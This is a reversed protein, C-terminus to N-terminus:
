LKNFTISPVVYNKMIKDLAEISDAKPACIGCVCINKICKIVPLTNLALSEKIFKIYETMTDLTCVPGIESNTNTKCDKTTFVEKTHQNIHLFYWNVSCYWDKFGQKPVFSLSQKLNNNTTLCRGACCSRGSKLSNVKEDTVDSLINEMVEISKSQEVRYVKFYKQQERNYSWEPEPNDLAKAYYSINHRKCFEVASVCTDWYIPNNHMVIVCKIRKNKQKLFLLNDFVQQQQKPLAESHFTITFEDILDVIETLRKYGVVLNTTCTITLPWSYPKHKDRCASLIEVIDPHFVSEGGYVNLVVEKLWQKKYQIYQDAYEYMLDISNLCQDLPPHNTSNDHGGYPGSPCYTCDLNCLKTLEWDLLFFPKNHPDLASEISHIDSM